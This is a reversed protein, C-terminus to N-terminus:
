LFRTPGSDRVHGARGAGLFNFLSAFKESYFQSRTRMSFVYRGPSATQTAGELELDVLPDAVKMVALARNAAFCGPRSLLFKM